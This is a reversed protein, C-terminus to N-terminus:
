KCVVTPIIELKDSASSYTAQISCAKGLQILAAGNPIGSICSKDFQVFLKEFKVNTVQEISWDTQNLTDAILQNKIKTLEVESVSDCAQSNLSFFILQLLFLTKM